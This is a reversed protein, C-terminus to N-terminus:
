QENRKRDPKYGSVAVKEGVESREAAKSNEKWEGPMKQSQVKKEEREM